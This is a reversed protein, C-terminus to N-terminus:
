PAGPPPRRQAELTGLQTKQAPTLVAYLKARLDAQQAFMQTALTGQTQGADSAIQAYNPDDPTTARLKADNDRMQKRLSEFSPRAAEMIAKVSAQQDATLGLKRYLHAPGWAHPGGDPGGHHGWGPRGDPPPPPAADAADPAAAAVLPLAGGVLLGALIAAAVSHRNPSM